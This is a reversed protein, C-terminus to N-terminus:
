NRTPFIGQLAICYNLVLFPQRNEHGLNNGVMGLANAAFSISATGTGYINVPATSNSTVASSQAVVKPPGPQRGGTADATAAKTAMLHNHRPIENINLTHGEEGGVQGLTFGAGMSIPIRGQLNPLLFTQVGNGGYTTGLLSFLASNQAIGLTQGNCLAWNKPPYNFSMIRIESM